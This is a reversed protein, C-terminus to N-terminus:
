SSAWGVGHRWRAAPRGAPDLVGRSCWSASIRGALRDRELHGDWTLTPVRGRHRRAALACGDSWGPRRRRGPRRAPQGAAGRADFGNRLDRRSPLGRGPLDVTVVLGRYGAAAAREVLARSVGRPRGARVPQFFRTGEPVAAAVDEMAVSSLTSLIMPVGAAAAARAVAMEAAPDALGQAAMPAIAWPVAAAAGLLSTSVDVHAVDVLVRPVLRVARWAAVSEGLAIEDWAGSAIYDWAAPAMRERAIPALEALSVAARARPDARPAPALVGNGQRAPSM